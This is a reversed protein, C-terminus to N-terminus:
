VYHRDNLDMGMRRFMGGAAPDPGDVQDPGNQLFADAPYNNRVMM